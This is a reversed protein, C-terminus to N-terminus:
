DMAEQGAKAEAEERAKIWFFVEKTANLDVLADHAGVIEKKFCHFYAESLKPWKYGTGKKKVLQCIPTMEQMTCVFPKTGFTSEFAETAFENRMIGDDFPFNHGVLLQTKKMLEEFELLAHTMPVGENFARENTIGHILSVNAPILWGNPKIIRNMRALEVGKDDTVLAALQCCRSQLPSGPPLTKNLFGTTETDFFCYAM